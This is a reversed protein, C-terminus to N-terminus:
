IILNLTVNRRISKKLNINIYDKSTEIAEITSNCFAKQKTKIRFNDNHRNCKCKYILRVTNNNKQYKSFNKSLKFYKGNFIIYDTNLIQM